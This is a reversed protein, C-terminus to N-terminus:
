LAFFALFDFFDCARLAALRTKQPLHPRPVQKPFTLIMCRVEPIGYWGGRIGLGELSFWGQSM